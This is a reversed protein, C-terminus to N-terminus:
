LSSIPAANFASGDPDTVKEDRVDETSARIRDQEAEYTADALQAAELDADEEPTTFVAELRVFEHRLRGEVELENDVFLRYFGAPRPRVGEDTLYEHLTSYPLTDLPHPIVLHSHFSWEQDEAVRYWIQSSVKTGLVDANVYEGIRPNYVQDAGQSWHTGNPDEHVIDKHSGKICHMSWCSEM